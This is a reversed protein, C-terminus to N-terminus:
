RACRRTRGQRRAPLCELGRAHHGVQAQSVADQEGHERPRRRDCGPGPLNRGVNEVAAAVRRADKQSGRGPHPRADEREQRRHGRRQAAGGRAEEGGQAEGEEGKGRSRCDGAAIGGARARPTEGSRAQRNAGDAGVQAPTGGHGRLVAAHAAAAGQRRRHTAAASGDRALRVLRPTGGRRFRVRQDREAAEPRGELRACGAEVRPAGQDPVRLNGQRAGEADQRRAEGGDGGTGEAAPVQFFQWVHRGGGGGRAAAHWGKGAGGDGTGPDHSRHSAQRVQHDGTVDRPRPEGM